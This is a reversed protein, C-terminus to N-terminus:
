FFKCIIMTCMYKCIIITCMYKCITITCMYNCITITCMYKCIVITCMYKCIIMTCMYKCIIITCINKCIIITCMCKCMVIHCKGFRDYKPIYVCGGHECTNHQCQGRACSHDRDCTQCKGCGCISEVKLKSTVTFCRTLFTCLLEFYITLYIQSLQALLSSRTYCLSTQQNYQVFCITKSVSPAASVRPPTNITVRTLLSHSFLTKDKRPQLHVRWDRQETLWFQGRLWIRPEGKM